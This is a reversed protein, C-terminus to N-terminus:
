PNLNPSADFLYISGGLIALPRRDHLWKLNLTDPLYTGQLNTASIAYVRPFNSPAVQDPHPFIDGPIEIYHIGYYRPDASGFYSLLLQRDPHSRQWAALAPLDQGWDLNSDSLLELGGRSGGAAINFFPIFDPYACYTEAAVGLALICVLLATIGPRRRAAFAAMVGLLIFLYPYVPLIHRLGLNLPTCMAAAFYLVPAVAAACLPWAGLRLFLRWRICLVLVPSLGILTALPTKFLMTLPFYYWWGERSFQGCLFTRRSVSTGYTYLFGMIWSQPLLHRKNLWLMIRVTAGPHWQDVWQQLTGVSVDVPNGHARISEGKACQLLYDQPDLLRSPDGTPSFTFGYCAWTTVYSICVTAALIAGAALLRRPRTRATWRIIRWDQGAAARCLLAVAVIPLALLGSFKSAIALATLLAVALCRSLTAREGLLWVAAMLATLALALPVDNKILPAHALFNPDLCFAGAAVVAAVPGALRWAWWAILVGLLLGLGIMRDRARGILLDANNAPTQYLTDICYYWGDAHQRLMGQWLPTQRDTKLDGPRDGVVAYYKWLPPDEPDCRFDGSFTHLWASVLDLPEDFTACKDRCGMHATVAFLLLFAACLALAAASAARGLRIPAFNSAGSAM